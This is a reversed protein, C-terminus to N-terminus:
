MLRFLGGRILADAIVVSDDVGGGGDVIGELLLLLLLLLGHSVYAKTKPDLQPHHLEFACDKRAKIIIFM